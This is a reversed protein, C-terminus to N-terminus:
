ENEASRMGLRYWRNGTWREDDVAERFEAKVAVSQRDVVPGGSGKGARRRLQPDDSYGNYSM